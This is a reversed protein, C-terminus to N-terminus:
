KQKYNKVNIKIFRYGLDILDRNLITGYKEVWQGSELDEKLRAIGTDVTIPDAVAFASMSNRVEPDLYMEPSKWGAAMFKDTLDAPLYFPIIEYELSHNAIKEGTLTINEFSSFAAEWIAPFYDNLWFHESQRPDFTLIVISGNKIIRQFERGANELSTFHHIALTILVGDVTNNKFPIKEAIGQVWKVKPHPVIQTLMTQSPEVAFVTLGREAMANSYNGSGAGIDALIGQDPLDLLRYATEVIRNDAKRHLSYNNGIRNYLAM